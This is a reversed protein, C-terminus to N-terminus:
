QNSKWFRSNVKVGKYKTTIIELENENIQIINATTTFDTEIENKVLYSDTIKDGSLDAPIFTITKFDDSHKWNGKVVIKSNDTKPLSEEYTGDENITLKVEHEISRYILQFAKFIELDEGNFEDLNTFKRNTLTFQGTFMSKRMEIVRDNIEVKNVPYQELRIHTGENFYDFVTYKVGQKQNVFCHNNKLKEYPDNDIVLMSLKYDDIEGTFDLMENFKTAPTFGAKSLIALIKTENEEISGEVALTLMETDNSSISKIQISELNLFNYAQNPKPTNCALLSLLLMALFLQSLNKM